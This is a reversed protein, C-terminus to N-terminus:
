SQAASASGCSLYLLSFLVLWIVSLTHWYIAGLRLALAWERAATARGARHWLWAFFPLGGVVHLAHLGTLAYFASGYADASATLGARASHQWLWAQFAVFSLGLLATLGVNRRARAGDGARMALSARLLPVTSALIVLTSGWLGAPPGPSGPPPWQPANRRLVLYAGLFALFLTVVSTMLFGFALEATGDSADDGPPEGPAEWGDENWGGDGGGGGDRPPPGGGSPARRAPPSPELTLSPM